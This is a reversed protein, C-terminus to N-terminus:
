YSHYCVTVRYRFDTIQHLLQSKYTTPMYSEHNLVGSNWVSRHLPAIWLIDNGLTISM